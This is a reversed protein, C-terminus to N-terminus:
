VRDAILPRLRRHSVYGLLAAAGSWAVAAVLAALSISAPELLTARLLELHSAIPNLRILWPSIEAIRDAAYLVPSLFFGLALLPGILESLDGVFVGIGAILTSFGAALVAIAVLVLPALLVSTELGSGSVLRALLFAAWWILAQYLASLSGALPLALTPFLARRVFHASHSYLKPARATTESFLNWGLLGAFLFFAYETRGAEPRIHIPILTSFVFTYTALFLLPVLAATAPGMLSGRYRGLFERQALTIVIEVSRALDSGV